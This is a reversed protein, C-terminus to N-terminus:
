CNDQLCSRYISLHATILLSWISYERVKKVVASLKVIKRREGKTIEGDKMMDGLTNGTIQGSKLRDALAQLKEQDM